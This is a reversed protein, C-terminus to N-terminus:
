LQVNHENNFCNIYSFRLPKEDKFTSICLIHMIYLDRVDCYGFVIQIDCRLLSLEGISPPSGYNVPSEPPRGCHLAALASGKWVVHKCGILVYM